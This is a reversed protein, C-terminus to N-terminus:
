QLASKVTHMKWTKLLRDRNHIRSPQDGLNKSGNNPIKMSNCIVATRFKGEIKIRQFETEM